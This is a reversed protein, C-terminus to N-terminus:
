QPTSAFNISGDLVGDVIADTNRDSVIARAAILELAEDPACDSQESVRLMADRMRLVLEQRTSNPM